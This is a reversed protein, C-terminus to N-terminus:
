RALGKERLSAASAAVADLIDGAYHDFEIVALELAPAAAIAEAIPVEGEGAPLQVLEAPDFPAAGPAFPNVGPVGDKVHLAVVREGLRRVLGVVDQGATAAWFLDVELVVDDALLGAFREFASVGGFEAAFEQAHNHYGVRLGHDRAREAAANLRRATDAVAEADLWRDPATMPDIVTGVGLAEAAAFVEELPPVEITVGGFSLRDSVLTAHGTPASLGHRRFAEALEAPRRVFDFAEVTRIGDAALRALTGDPDASLADNVSYLQLSVLPQSM